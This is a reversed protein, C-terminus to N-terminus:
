DEWVAHPWKPCVQLPYIDILIKEQEREVQICTLYFLFCGSTDLPDKNDTPGRKAGFEEWGYMWCCLSGKKNKKKKLSARGGM